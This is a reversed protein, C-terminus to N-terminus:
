TSKRRAAYRKVLEDITVGGLIVLGIVAYEVTTPLWDVLTITNKLVQMVGAGIVVGIMTGEGGRLSCGGLVAGAIAYLEFFSGFDVPQASGIDLVWLLGGLGSMLGCIVYALITIRDTAIGSYRAAKENQGIALMYRGYITYNLFIVALVVLGALILCPIPIGFDTGPLDLKGQSLWRLSKYGGQFGQTQDQVIGRTAGRYILLGCLTVIFPQLRLKTILLGHFLGLSLSILTVLLLVVPVPLEYDVLFWPTLCGVLCVMSGISLDIGGTIIVFAAGISLIGFLASRRILNEINYETLFRDSMMATILCVFVLLGFIGLIKKM